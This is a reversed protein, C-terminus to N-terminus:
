VNLIYNSMVIIFTESYPLSVDTSKVFKFGLSIMFFTSCNDEYLGYFYM